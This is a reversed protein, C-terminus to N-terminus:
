RLFLDSRSGRWVLASYVMVIGITFFTLSINGMQWSLFGAVGILPFKALFSLVTFGVGVPTAAGRLLKVVAYLSWAGFSGSTLGLALGAVGQERGAAWAALSLLLAGYAAGWRLRATM